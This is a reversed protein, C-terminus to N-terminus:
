FKEFFKQRETLYNKWDPLCFIQANSNLSLFTSYPELNNVTIHNLFQHNENFKIKNNVTLSYLFLKELKPFFKSLQSFNTDLISFEFFLNKVNLHNTFTSSLDFQLSRYLLTELNSCYINIYTSVTHSKKEDIVWFALIKFYNGFIRILKLILHFKTIVHRNNYAISTTTGCLLSVKSNFNSELYPKVIDKLYKNTDSFNILDIFSLYCFVYQFDDITLDTILAMNNM